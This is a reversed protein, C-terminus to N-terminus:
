DKIRTGRNNEGSKLGSCGADLITTHCAAHTVHQQHRADSGADQPKAEVLMPEHTRSNNSKITNTSAFIPFIGNFKAM